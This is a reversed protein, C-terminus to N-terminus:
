FVLYKWARGLEAGDMVERWASAEPVFSNAIEDGQLHRLHMKFSKACFNLPHNPFIGRHSKAQSHQDGAWPAAALCPDRVGARHRSAAPPNCLHLHCGSPSPVDRPWWLGGAWGRTAPATGGGESPTGKEQQRAIKMLLCVLLAVCFNAM